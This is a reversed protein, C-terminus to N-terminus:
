TDSVTLLLLGETELNSSDVEFEGILCEIRDPGCLEVTPAYPHLSANQVLQLQISFQLSYSGTLDGTFNNPAVLRDVDVDSSNYGLGDETSSVFYLMYLQFTLLKNYKGDQLHEM